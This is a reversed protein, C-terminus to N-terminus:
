KLTLQANAQLTKWNNLTKKKQQSTMKEWRYSGAAAIMAANDTSYSIPQLIYKVQPINKKIALQLKERLNSNASVGGALLITQPNYKLAAQITKHTLVDSAAEQFKYAL